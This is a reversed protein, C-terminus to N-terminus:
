AIQYGMPSGLGEGPPPPPNKEGTKIRAIKRASKGANAPHVVQYLHTCGDPTSGGM